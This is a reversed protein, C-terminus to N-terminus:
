DPYHFEPGDLSVISQFLQSSKELRNCRNILEFVLGGLETFLALLGDYKKEEVKLETRTSRFFIQVQALNSRVLNMAMNKVTKNKMIDQITGTYNIKLKEAKFIWSEESPWKSAAVLADYTREVCSPKCNCLTSENKWELGYFIRDACNEIHEQAVTCYDVNFKEQLNFEDLPPYICNCIELIVSLTCLRSCTPQTYSYGETANAVFTINVENWGSVCKSTYPPPQHHFETLRIGFRTWMAPSIDIGQENVLPKEGPEHIAIRFQSFRIISKSTAYM